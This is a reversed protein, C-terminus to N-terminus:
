RLCIFMNYNRTKTSVNRNLCKLSALLSKLPIKLLYNKVFNMLFEFKIIAICFYLTLNKKALEICGEVIRLM